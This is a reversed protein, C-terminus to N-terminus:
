EHNWGQTAAAMDEENFIAIWSCHAFTCGRTHGEHRAEWYTEKHYWVFGNRDRYVPKRLLKWMLYKVM